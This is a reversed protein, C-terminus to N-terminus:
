FMGLQVPEGLKVRKAKVIKRGILVWTHVPRGHSGMRKLATKALHGDYTLVTMARRVSTLPVSRGFLREHIDDPRWPGPNDQFFALVAQEQSEATDRYQKLTAETEATTNYFM